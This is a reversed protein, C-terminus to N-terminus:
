SSAIVLGYSWGGYLDKLTLGGARYTLGKRQSVITLGGARYTLGKRQSVITRAAIVRFESEQVQELIGIM